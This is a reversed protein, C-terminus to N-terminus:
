ETSIVFLFLRFLGSGMKKESSFERFPKWRTLLTM